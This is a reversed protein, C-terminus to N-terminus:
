SQTKIAHHQVTILTLLVEDDNAGISISFSTSLWGFLTDV